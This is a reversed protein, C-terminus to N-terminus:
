ATDELWFKGLLPPLVGITLGLVMLLWLVGAGTVLGGILTNGILVYIGWTIMLGAIGTIMGALWLYVLLTCTAVLARRIM